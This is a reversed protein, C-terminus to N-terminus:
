GVAALRQPRSSEIKGKCTLVHRGADRIFVYILIMLNVAAVEKIKRTVDARRLVTLIPLTTTTRQGMLISMASIIATTVILLDSGGTTPVILSVRGKDM